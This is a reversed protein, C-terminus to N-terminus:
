GNQNGKVFEKVYQEQTIGLKKILNLQSQKLRVKQPATSRAAPAVVTTPKPRPPPDNEESTVSEFEEPFRKRMVTDLTSYYTDSGVVVGSDELEQHVGLAYATMGKKSGFWKNRNQWAVLKPDSAPPAQTQYDSQVSSNDEQLPPLKFTQAQHLKLNAVSLAQQAEVLKDSDGADYAEKYAKKAAALELEAANKVTSVYEKEGASLIDKIRKNEDLLRKATQIAAQQERLAAEKERREDHWVKRLQTLKQKIGEDYKDLEDKDLEEVIPKPMPTRNRDEEPTDDEVEIIFDPSENVGGVKVETEDPFKFEQQDM